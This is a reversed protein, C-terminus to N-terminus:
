SSSCRAGFPWALQRLYGAPRIDDVGYHAPWRNGPLYITGFLADLAPFEGAYNSNYAQPERPTIAITFQATAIM